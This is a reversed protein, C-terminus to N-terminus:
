VSLISEDYLFRFCDKCQLMARAKLRLLDQDPMRYFCASCCGNQIPVVPNSTRKRMVEYRELWEGPIGHQKDIREQELTALAQKQQAITQESKEITEQLTMLQAETTSKEHTLTKVSNEYKQWAQLLTDEAHFQKQKLNELEQYLSQVEKANTTTELIRRKKEISEDLAKMEFEQADIAHRAEQQARKIDHAKAQLAIIEKHDRERQHVLTNIQDELQNISQDFKVLQIFLSLPFENM